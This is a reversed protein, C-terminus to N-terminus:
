YLVHFHINTQHHLFLYCTVPWMFELQSLIIEENSHFIIGGFANSVIDIVEYFWEFGDLILHNLNTSYNDLDSSLNHYFTLKFVIIKM